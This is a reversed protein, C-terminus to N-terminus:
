GSRRSKGGPSESERLFIPRKAPDGRNVRANAYHAYNAEFGQLTAPTVTVFKSSDFLSMQCGDFEVKFRRADSPDDFNVFAYGRNADTDPDVPLYIFDFTGAFGKSNIEEILMQQTYKNPLNRMMVTRMDGEGSVAKVLTTDTGIAQPM